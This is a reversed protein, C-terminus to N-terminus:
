DTYVNYNNQRLLAADAKEICEFCKGEEKERNAQLEIGCETCFGDLTSLIERTRKELEDKKITETVTLEVTTDKQNRQRELLALRHKNCEYCYGVDGIHIVSVRNDCVSCWYNSKNYDHKQNLWWRDTDYEKVDAVTYVKRENKFYDSSFWCTETHQFWSKPNIVFFENESNLFCLRNNSGVYDTILGRYGKNSEWGIPLKSLMSAFLSSDSPGEEKKAGTDSITGNHCMVLKNKTIVFPHCNTIDKQKGHTSYRFHLMFNSEPHLNRLKKFAIEFNEYEFFGKQVKVRAKKTGLNVVYAFGAGDTNSKWAKKLLEFDVEEPSISRPSLLTIM